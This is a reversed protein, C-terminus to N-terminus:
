APAPSTSPESGAASIASILTFIVAAILAKVTVQAGGAGTPSLLCAGSM